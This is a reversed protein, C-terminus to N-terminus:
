LTDIFDFLIAISCIPLIKFVVDHKLISYNSIDFDDSLCTFFQRFFESGVVFLNRPSFYCTHAVFKNMIVKPYINLNYPFCHAM